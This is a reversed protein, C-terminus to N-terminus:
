RTQYSLPGKAATCGAEPLNGKGLGASISIIM